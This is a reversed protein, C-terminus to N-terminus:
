LLESADLNVNSEAPIDSFESMNIHTPQEERARESVDGHGHDANYGPNVMGQSISTGGGANGDGNSDERYPKTDATM